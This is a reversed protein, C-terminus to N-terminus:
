KRNNQRAKDLAMRRNGTNDRSIGEDQERKKKAREVDLYVQAVLKNEDIM